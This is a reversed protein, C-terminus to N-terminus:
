DADPPEYVGLPRRILRKGGEDLKLSAEATNTRM